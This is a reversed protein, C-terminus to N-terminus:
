SGQPLPIRAVALWSVAYPWLLLLYIRGKNQCVRPAVGSPLACLLQRVECMSCACMLAPSLQQAM